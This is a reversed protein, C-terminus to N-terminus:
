VLIKTDLSHLNQHDPPEGTLAMILAIRVDERSESAMLGALEAALGRRVM